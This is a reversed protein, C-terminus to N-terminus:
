EVHRSNEGHQQRLRRILSAHIQSIRSKELGLSRGIEKMTQGEHYYGIVVLRETQTCGQLITRLLERRRFSRDPAAVNSILVDEVTLVKDKNTIADGLSRPRGLSNAALTARLEQPTMGMQEGTQELSMGDKEQMVKVMAVIRRRMVRGISDAKRIEDYIAGAIRRYAFSEFRVGRAPDFAAIAFALGFVGYGILDGLEFPAGPPMATIVKKARWEVLGYYREILRNRNADSPDRQYADWLPGDNQAIM